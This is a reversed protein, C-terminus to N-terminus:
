RMKNIERLRKEIERNQKELQRVQWNDVASLGSIAAESAKAKELEAKLKEEEQREEYRDNSWSAVRGYFKWPAALLKTLDGSSAEANESEVDPQPLGECTFTYAVFFGLCACLFYNAYHLWSLIGDIM